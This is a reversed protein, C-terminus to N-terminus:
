YWLSIPQVTISCLASMECFINAKGNQKTNFYISAWFIALGRIVDSRTKANILFLITVNAHWRGREPRFQLRILSKRLIEIVFHPKFVWPFLDRRHSCFSTWKFKLDATFLKQESYKESQKMTLSSNIYTYSWKWRFRLHTFIIWQHFRKKNRLLVFMAWHLNRPNKILFCFAHHQSLTPPSRHHELEVQCVNEYRRADDAPKSHRRHISKAFLSLYRLM